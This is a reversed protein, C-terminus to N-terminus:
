LPKWSCGCRGAAIQETHDQRDGDDVVADADATSKVGPEVPLEVVM